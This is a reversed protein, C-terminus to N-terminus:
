PLTLPTLREELEKRFKEYQPPLRLNHGLEELSEDATFGPPDTALEFLVGGPERYYISHFYNRDMVPSVHFGLSELKERWEEQTADDPVRFAVHHVTGAGNLARAQPSNAILPVDVVAVRAFAAGPKAEYVGDRVTHFGMVETLLNVTPAADRVALVVGVIGRVANEPPVTGSGSGDGPYDGEELTLRLGDPDAFRLVGAGAEAFEVGKVTLRERWFDLSGIPVGLATETVQGIGVRGPNAGPWPFFTLITGPRGLGDGYYLHYTGPDDFNVTKKVLRLGLAGAYFDVNIQPDGAIATLHHIGTIM